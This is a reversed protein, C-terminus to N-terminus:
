GNKCLEGIHGVSVYASRCVSLCAHWTEVSIYDWTCTININPFTRKWNVETHQIWFGMYTFDL